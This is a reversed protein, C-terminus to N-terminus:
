MKPSQGPSDSPPVHLRDPPLRGACWTQKRECCLILSPISVISKAATGIACQLKCSNLLRGVAPKPDGQMM